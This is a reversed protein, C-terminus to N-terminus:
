FAPRDCVLCSVTLTTFLLQVPLIILGFTIIFRLFFLFYSSARLCSTLTAGYNLGALCMLGFTRHLVLNNNGIKLFLRYYNHKDLIAYYLIFFRLLLEGPLLHEERALNGCGQAILQLFFFSGEM